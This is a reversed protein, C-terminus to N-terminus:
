DFEKNPGQFLCMSSNRGKSWEDEYRGPRGDCEDDRHGNDEDEDDGSNDDEEDGSLLQGNHRDPGM